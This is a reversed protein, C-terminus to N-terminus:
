FSEFADLGRKFRFADLEKAIRVGRRAHSKM